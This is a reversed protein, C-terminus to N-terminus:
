KFFFSSVVPLQFHLWKEVYDGQLCVCKECRELWSQMAAAFAEKPSRLVQVCWTSVMIPERQVFGACLVCFGRGDLSYDLWYVAHIRKFYRHFHQIPLRPCGVIPQGGAQPTPRPALLDVVYFYGRFRTSTFATLFRQTGCYTPFKNVLQSSTLKLPSSQQTSYPSFQRQEYHLLLLIKCECFM